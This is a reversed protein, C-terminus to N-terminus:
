NTKDLHEYLDKNNVRIEIFVKYYSKERFIERNVVQYNKVKYSKIAQTIKEKYTSRTEAKSLKKALIIDTDEIFQEALITSNNTIKLLISGIALGTAKRNAMEISQSDATAKGYFYNKEQKETIYWNPIKNKFKKIKYNKTECQHFSFLILIFLFFKNKM